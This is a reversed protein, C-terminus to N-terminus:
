LHTKKKPTALQQVAAAISGMVVLWKQCDRSLHERKHDLSDHGTIMKHVGASPKNPFDTYV